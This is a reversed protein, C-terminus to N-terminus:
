PQKWGHREFAETSGSQRAEKWENFEQCSDINSIRVECSHPFADGAIFVVSEPLLVFDLDTGAFATSEIRSLSSSEFSISSLSNCRSFCSSCLIEVGRPITISELASGSFANSEIRKLRSDNEFSISSLSNCCSFCSSCLIEVVRPITISKLASGYFAGSEIRTLRSDNEFSISSLSNCYSFCSSCLIEVGRPIRISRIPQGSFSHEGIRFIRLSAALSPFFASSPVIVDDGSALRAVIAWQAAACVNLGAVVVRAESMRIFIFQSTPSFNLASITPSKDPSLGRM